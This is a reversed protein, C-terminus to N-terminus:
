MKKSRLNEKKQLNERSGLRVGTGGSLLLAINM